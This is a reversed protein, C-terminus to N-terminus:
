CLALCRVKKQRRLNLQHSVVEEWVRRSYDSPSSSMVSGVGLDVIEQFGIIWVDVNDYDTVKPNFWVDLDFAKNPPVQANVNYTGVFVRKKSITTFEKSRANLQSQVWKEEITQAQENTRFIFTGAFGQLCVQEMDDQFDEITGLFFDIAEQKNEDSFKAHYLRTVSKTADDLLGALTSKGKRTYSSKMAGTGAYVKSVVDGHNAWMTNFAQGLRSAESIHGEGGMEIVINSLAARAIATQTVNTRDLCDLCNTRFIGRQVKHQKGSKTSWM